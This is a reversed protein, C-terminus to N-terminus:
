ETYTLQSHLERSGKLRRAHSLVREKERKNRVEGKLTIHDELTVITINQASLSLKDDDTLRDRIRRTVDVDSDRSKSQDSAAVREQYHKKTVKSTRPETTCAAGSIALLTLVSLSKRLNM